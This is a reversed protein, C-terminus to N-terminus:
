NKYTTKIVDAMIDDPIQLSPNTKVDELFKKVKKEQCDAQVEGASKLKAMVANVIQDLMAPDLEKVVPPKKKAEEAAQAAAADAAEQEPKKAPFAKEVEIKDEESLQKLILTRVETDSNMKLLLLALEKNMNNGKESKKFCIRKRNAGKDVIAIANITMDILNRKSLIGSLSKKVDPGERGKGEMSVSNYEGSEIKNWLEEDAVHFGALWDDKKVIDNGIKTDQFMISSEVVEAADNIFKEHMLSVNRTRMFGWAAKQIEEASARDGHADVENASYVVCYFVHNPHESKIIPTDRKWIVEEGLNPNIKLDQLITCDKGIKLINETKAERIIEATSNCKGQQKDIITIPGFKLSWHSDSYIPEISEAKVAVADGEAFPLESKVIGASSYTASKTPDLAYGLEYGWSIKNLVKLRM